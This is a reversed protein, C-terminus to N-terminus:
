CQPTQPTSAVFVNKQCISLKALAGYCKLLTRGTSAINEAEQASLLLDYADFYKMLRAASFILLAVMDDEATHGSIDTSIDALFTIVVKVHVAKVRSSLEPYDFRSNRGM